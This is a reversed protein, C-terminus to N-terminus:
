VGIMEYNVTMYGSESGIADPNKLKVENAMVGTEKGFLGIKNAEENWIWSWLTYGNKEGIKKKNSKLRPDSFLSVVNGVLGFGQQQAAANAQQNGLIGSARSEAAAQTSQNIDSSAQAGFQGITNAASQGQGALQGLRGFQNDIDQQAFGVGQEVLASLVNGGGLGGTASSNRLLNKQARDQLFQQGPSSTLSGYAATQADVGNLGLLDQQSNIASTGAQLFPSLNGQTIDFQRRTEDVGAMAADSQIEAADVAADGADTSGGFLSGVADGVFSM